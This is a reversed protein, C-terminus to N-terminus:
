RLLLWMRLSDLLTSKGKEYPIMEKVDFQIFPGFANTLNFVDESTGEFIFFGSNGDMFFGGDTIIRAETYREGDELMAEVIEAARKPDAPWPVAVSPRWLVLFRAM